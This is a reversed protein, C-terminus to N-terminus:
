VGVENIAQRITEQNKAFLQKIDGKREKAFQRNLAVVLEPQISIVRNRRKRFEEGFVVACDFSLPIYFFRLSGSEGIIITFPIESTLFEAEKSLLFSFSVNYLNDKLQNHLSNKTADDFCVRLDALNLVSQYNGLGMEDLLEKIPQLGPVSARVEDVYGFEQQKMIFPNRLFLNVSFDVLTNHAEASCILANKNNPERCNTIIKRISQAYRNENYSFMKEIDNPLIFEGLKDTHETWSVEYLYKEFCIDKPRCNFFDRKIRNYGCIMQNNSCFQKLLFVPVFHENQTM